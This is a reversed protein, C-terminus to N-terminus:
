GARQASAHGQRQVHIHHPGKQHGCHCRTAFGMQHQGAVTDGFTFVIGIREVEYALEHLAEPRRRRGSQRTEAAAEDATEAVIGHAVDLRPQGTGSFTALDRVFQTRGVDYKQQGLLDGNDVVQGALERQYDKGLGANGTSILLRLRTEFGQEGFQALRCANRGFRLSWRLRGHGQESLRM